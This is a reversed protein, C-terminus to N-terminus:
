SLVAPSSLGQSSVGGFGYNGAIESINSHPTPAAGRLPLINRCKKSRSIM